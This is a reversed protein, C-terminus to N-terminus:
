MITEGKVPVTLREKQLTEKHSTPSDDGLMLGEGKAPTPETCKRIDAARSEFDRFVAGLRTM